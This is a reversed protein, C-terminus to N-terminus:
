FSLGYLTRSNFSELNCLSIGCRCLETGKLQTKFKCYYTVHLVVHISIFSRMPLMILALGKRLLAHLTSLENAHM